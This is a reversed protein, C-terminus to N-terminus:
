AEAGKALVAEISQIRTQLRKLEPGVLWRAEAYLHNLQEELAESPTRCIFTTFHQIPPFPQGNGIEYRMTAEMGETEAM